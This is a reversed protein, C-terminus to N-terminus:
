VGLSRAALLLECRGEASPFVSHGEQDYSPLPRRHVRCLRAWSRLQLDVRTIVDTFCRRGRPARVSAPMRSMTRIAKGGRLPGDPHRKPCPPPVVRPSVQRRYTHRLRDTRSAAYSRQTTHVARQGRGTRPARVGAARSHGDHKAPDINANADIDGQRIPGCDEGMYAHGMNSRM